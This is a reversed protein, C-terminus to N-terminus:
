SEKRAAWRNLYGVAPARLASPVWCRLQQATWNISKNASM